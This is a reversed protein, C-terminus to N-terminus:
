LSSIKFKDEEKQSLTEQFLFNEFLVKIDHNSCNKSFRVWRAFSQEGQETSCLLLDTKDFFDAYHALVNHVYLNHLEWHSPFKQFVNILQFIRCKFLLRFSKNRQVKHSQYSFWLVESWYKLFSYMSSQQKKTLTELQSPIIFQRWNLMLYRLDSGKCDSLSYRRLLKQLKQEFKNQDLWESIFCSLVTKTLGM